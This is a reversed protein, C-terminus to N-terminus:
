PKLKILYTESTYPSSSLSNAIGSIIYGGDKTQQINRGYDTGTGGYNELWSQVGNADTKLVAINSTNANGDLDTSGVAIYGGDATLQVYHAEESVDDKGYHKDWTTAGSADLKILELDFYGLNSVGAAICGGDPTAKISYGDDTYAQDGFSKTWSLAGAATLKYIVFQTLGGNAGNGQSGVVVYGGDKVQQIENADLQDNLGTTGLSKSWLIKGTADMKFATGGNMTGIINGDATEQVFIPTASGTTTSWVVVGASNIKYIDTGTGGALLYNGDKTPTISSSSVKLKGLLKGDPDVKTISDGAVIYNGDSLQVVGAGVNDWKNAGYTKEWQVRTPNDPTVTSSDDPTVDDKKKKCSVVAVSILIAFLMKRKM